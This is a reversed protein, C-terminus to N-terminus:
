RSLMFTEFELDDLAGNLRYLGLLVCLLLSLTFGYGFFTPGLMQSFLTLAGNALVFLVCLELVIARKDLYFFVNLLAMFVVQISVGIVDIYFLPLYYHSIGLWSLLQPALLFLLVLTLGQVKCIEMLGQRIALIMQEKLWGIHQLTEGGRIADYVREYWEAFDTEIRVLFVAMGPIISLYALFIPLDYLISARLPGIVAESTSPNFWFIFKDIWIGLNYCLGTLLLSGFVQRRKLFDFAVLREAPYERLIDFLFIFLLSSHGILLGLLLGDINLFRLLYASVVMLSYGLFMVGLIRNYAKMGSLFIIVLWLNCLVVFNAMVLLRYSFSQDFLLGLVCIALLGSVITVLLLIGVLNPLILDLRREFLRDSVFRTFFLQLGGTLILSTAMLYTVTVLFQGILTEPLVAGLSLVGILMVSIISLVWPGSSILGAYLYARMTSTYSDKSLIKRLEFGIGAM